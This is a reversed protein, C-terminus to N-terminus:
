NWLIRAFAEKREGNVDGELKVERPLRLTQIVKEIGDDFRRLSRIFIVGDLDLSALLPAGQQRDIRLIDAAVIKSQHDYLTIPRDEFRSSQFPSKLDWVKITQDNSVSVLM